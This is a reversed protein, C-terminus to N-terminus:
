HDVNARTLGCHQRGCPTIHLPVSSQTALGSAYFQPSKGPPGMSSIPPHLPTPQQSHLQRGRKEPGEESELPKSSSYGVLAAHTPLRQGRTTGPFLNGMQKKKTRTRPISGLTEHAKPLRETGIRFRGRGKLFLMEM